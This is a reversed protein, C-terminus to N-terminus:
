FDEPQDPIAYKGIKFFRDNDDKTKELEIADDEEKKKRAAELIKPDIPKEPPVIQELESIFIKYCGRQVVLRTIKSIDSAENITIKLEENLISLREKYSKLLHKM